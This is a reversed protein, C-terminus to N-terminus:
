GESIKQLNKTLFRFSEFISWENEIKHVIPHIHVTIATIADSSRDYQYSSVFSTFFDSTMSSLSRCVIVEFKLLNTSLVCHFSFSSFFRHAWPTKLGLIISSILTNKFFHYNSKHDPHSVGRRISSVPLHFLFHLKPVPSTSIREFVHVGLKWFDQIKRLQIPSSPRQWYGPNCHELWLVELGM